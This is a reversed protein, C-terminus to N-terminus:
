ARLIRAVVAELDEAAGSAKPASTVLRKEPAVSDPLDSNLIRAAVSDATEAPEEVASPAPLTVVRPEAASAPIIAVVPKAEARMEAAEATLARARRMLDSAWQADAEFGRPTLPSEGVRDPVRAADIKAWLANAEREAKAAEARMIEETM